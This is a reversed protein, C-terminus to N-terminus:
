MVEKCKKQLEAAGNLLIRRTAVRVGRDTEDM